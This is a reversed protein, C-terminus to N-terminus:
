PATPPRTWPTRSRPSPPAGADTDADTDADADADTDADVDADSDSDADTDADAQDCAPAGACDPDDCDYLGDSDNDAGDSCEGPNSGETASGKCGALALAAMVVLASRM